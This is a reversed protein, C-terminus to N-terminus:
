TVQPDSAHPGPRTETSWGIYPRYWYHGLENATTRFYIGVTGGGENQVVPDAGAAIAAAMTQVSWGSGPVYSHHGLNGNSERWFIDVTGNPQGIAVPDAGAAISATRVEYSWGNAQVYSDHGLNGSATRFFIDVTGNDQAVVTPDSTVSDARVEHGWGVGPTYWDHGLENGSTRYFIDIIGGSQRAIRPIADLAMAAPREEVGWGGGSIHWQHGLNGSATRFYTEVTGGPTAIVRPGTTNDESVKAPSSPPPPTRPAVSVGLATTAETIEMYFAATDCPGSLSTEHDVVNYLGLAVNGAFVPGGSDGGRGCVNKFETEHYLTVKKSGDEVEPLTKNIASVNGCTTGSNTGSHCVYEGLYSSAESTIAREQDEGYHAVESPWPAQDWYSGNALIKAWDGGPYTYGAISGILHFATTFPDGTTVEAGWKTSAVACHGATLVYRNGSSDTAKFGATCYGTIPNSPDEAKALSVGGRLPRDCRRPATTKCAMVQAQFSDESNQVVTVPAQAEAAQSQVLALASDDIGAAVEVVVSNTRPDLGTRVFGAEIRPLLAADIDKQAAELNEWSSVAAAATRFDGALGARDLQDRVAAVSADGLVPVVFEGSQNDFWIGAYRKGQTDEMQEVIGAAEHQTELHEEAVPAPLDFAQGYSEAEFPEVEAASATASLACLALLALVCLSFLGGERRGISRLPLGNSRGGM